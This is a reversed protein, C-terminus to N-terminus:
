TGALKDDNRAWGAISNPPIFTKRFLHKVLHEQGKRMEAEFYDYNVRSDARTKSRKDVSSTGSVLQKEVKRFASGIDVSDSRDKSVPPEQQKNSINNNEKFSEFSTVKISLENNDTDLSEESDLKRKVSRNTNVHESVKREVGEQDLHSARSISIPTKTKSHPSISYSGRSCTCQFRIHAMLLYIFRFTEGCDPCELTEGDASLHSAM